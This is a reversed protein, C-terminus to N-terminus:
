CESHFPSLILYDYLSDLCTPQHHNWMHRSTTLQRNDHALRTHHKSCRHYHERWTRRWEHSLSQNINVHSHLHFPFSTSSLYNVWTETIPLHLTLCDRPYTNSLLDIQTKSNHQNHTAFWVFIGTLHRWNPIFISALGVWGLGLLLNLQFSQIHTWSKSRSELNPGAWTWKPSGLYM